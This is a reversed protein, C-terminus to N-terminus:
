LYMYYQKNKVYMNIHLRSPQYTKLSGMQQKKEASGVDLKVLLLAHDSFWHNKSFWLRSFSQTETSEKIPCDGNDIQGCYPPRMKNFPVHMDNTIPQLEYSKNVNNIINVKGLININPSIYIHDLKKYPQTKPTLEGGSDCVWGSYSTVPQDYINMLPIYERGIIDSDHVNTDGAIISYSKKQFKSIKLNIENLWIENGHSPLHMNILYIFKMKSIDNADSESEIYMCNTILIRPNFTSLKHKNEDSFNMYTHYLFKNKDVLTCLGGKKIFSYKASLRKRVNKKFKRIIKDDDKIDGTEYPFIDAEQLFMIDINAKMLTEVIIDFRFIDDYMLKKRTEDNVLDVCGRNYHSSQLSLINLSGFRIM